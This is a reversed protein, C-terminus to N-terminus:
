PLRRVKGTFAEANSYLDATNPSQMTFQYLSKSSMGGIRIQPPISPYAKIGPVQAFKSRLRNIIASAHEKRETKDKLRIVMTGSNGFPQTGTPGVVSMYSKVAPDVAMIAALEQQHAAMNEFSSGQLGETQVVIQGTDELPLFGKPAIIFLWVTLVLVGGSLALTAARHEL